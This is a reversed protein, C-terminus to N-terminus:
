VIDVNNVVFNVVFCAFSSNYAKSIVVIILVKCKLVCFQRLKNVKQCNKCFLKVKRLIWDIIYTLPYFVAIYTM